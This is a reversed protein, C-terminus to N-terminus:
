VRRRIFDFLWAVLGLLVIIAVSGWIILLARRGRMATEADRSRLAVLALVHAVLFAPGGIIVPIFMAEPETNGGVFHLAPWVLGAVVFLSACGLSCGGSANPKPPANEDAM